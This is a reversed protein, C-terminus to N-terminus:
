TISRNKHRIENFSALGPTGKAPARPHFNIYDNDLTTDVLLSAGSQSCKLTFLWDSALVALQCLEQDHSCSILKWEQNSKAAVCIKTELFGSFDILSDPSM